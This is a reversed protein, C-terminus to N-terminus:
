LSSNHDKTQLLMKHANRIASEVHLDDADIISFGYSFHISDSIYSLENNLQILMNEIQKAENFYAVIIFEDGLRYRACFAWNAFCENIISAFYILEWKAKNNNSFVM